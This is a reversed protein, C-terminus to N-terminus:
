KQKNKKKNSIKTAKIRNTNGRLRKIKLPLYTVDNGKFNKGKKREMKVNGSTGSSAVKKNMDCNRKNLLNTSESDKKLCPKFYRTKRTHEVSESDSIDMDNCLPVFDNDLSIFDNTKQVDNLREATSPPIFAREKCSTRYKYVNTPPIFDKNENLTNEICSSNDIKSHKSISNDSFKDSALLQLSQGPPYNKSICLVNEYLAYFYHGAILVENKLALASSAFGINELTHSKLSPLLVIPIKKAQAMMIIHKILFPPEVDADLLICCLENKELSRTVINIGFIISNLLDKNPEKIEISKEKVKDNERAWKKNRKEKRTPRRLAPLLQQLTSKLKADDEPGVLPWYTDNPQALVNRLGKIPGKKASLSQRQQKKTLVPTNM